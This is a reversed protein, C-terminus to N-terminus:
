AMTIKSMVADQCFTKWRLSQEQGATDLLVGDAKSGVVQAM